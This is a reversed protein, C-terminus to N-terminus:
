RFLLGSVHPPGLDGPGQKLLEFALRHTAYSCGNTAGIGRM